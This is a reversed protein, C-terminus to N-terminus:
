QWCLNLCGFESHELKTEGEFRIACFKDRYVWLLWDSSYEYSIIYFKRYKNTDIPSVISRKKATKLKRRTKAQELLSLVPSSGEEAENPAIEDDDSTIEDDDSTIEDDDSTIEDDDSATEDEDSTTTEDEESSIEDEDSFSTWDLLETLAELELETLLLLEIDM